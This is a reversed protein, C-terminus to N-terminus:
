TLKRVAVAQVVGVTPKPQLDRLMAGRPFMEKMM